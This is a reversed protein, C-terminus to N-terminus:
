TQSSGARSRCSSRSPREEDASSVNPAHEQEDACAADLPVQALASADLARSTALRVDRVLARRPVGALTRYADDAIAHPVVAVEVDHHFPVDVHATTVVNVSLRRCSACRVAIASRGEAERRWCSSPAVPFGSALPGRSLLVGGLAVARGQDSPRRPGRARRPRCRHSSTMLNVYTGEEGVGLPAWDLDDHALLGDHDDGCVCAFRVRFVAPHAAGPLREIERFSSLPVSARERRPVRSRTALLSRTTCARM